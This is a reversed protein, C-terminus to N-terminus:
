GGVKSKAARSGSGSASAANRRMAVELPDLQSGPNIVFDLRGPQPVAARARNLSPTLPPARQAHLRWPPCGDPLRKHSTGWGGRM